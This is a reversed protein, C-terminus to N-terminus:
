MNYHCFNNLDYTPLKDGQARIFLVNSKYYDIILKKYEGYSYNFVGHSIM